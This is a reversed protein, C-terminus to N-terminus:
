KPDPLHRASSSQIPINRRCRTSQGIGFVFRKPIHTTSGSSAYARNAGFSFSVASNKGSLRGIMRRLISHYSIRTSKPHIKPMPSAAMRVGSLGSPIIRYILIILLASFLWISHLKLVMNPQKVSLAAITRSRVWHRIYPKIAERMAESAWPSGPEDPLATVANNRGKRNKKGVPHVPPLYLVDFGLEHVRPLLQEVDKLTGPRGPDPSCSRPFVEYWSSFLERERGVRVRLERTYETVILKAPFKNVLAAFESSLVSDVAQKQQRPNSLLAAHHLLTAAQDEAYLAATRELWAAGLRLEVDMPQGDAYKKLFGQHWNLLHDIWAHVTYTYFGTDKVVFSAEWVDNELPSM